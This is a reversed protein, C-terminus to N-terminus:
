VVRIVQKGINKGSFIGVLASPANELGEKIDEVYVLKGDKYLTTVHELFTPFLHLYDSQIFGQIKLRKVIVNNLHYFSQPDSLNKLSLIGCAAIRGFNRMNRLAADLMEGGVNDFYIDIGRPFYRKLAAVLNPEDKYNFADDFGFKNKLLDVKDNSGATGVVYCGHLKALQGVLQGVAGSATSVFVNEGKKPSCVEFFGVYATFGPMGLLGLHYSLPIDNDLDIKRFQQTQNPSILTYEEWGTMGAVYDGAKFDPQDSNVVQSVGFGEIPQGPVFSPIYSRRYYQMRAKMYPDCSLYLNKVLISSSGKPSNHNTIMIESVKVEMDTEKPMTEIYGKLLVQKNEVAM